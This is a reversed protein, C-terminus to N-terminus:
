ISASVTLVTLDTSSVEIDSIPYLKNSSDSSKQFALSFKKHLNHLVSKKVFRYVILAQKLNFLAAGCIFENKEDVLYAFYKAKQFDKFIKGSLQVSSNHETFM